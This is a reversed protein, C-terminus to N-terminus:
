QQPAPCHVRQLRFERAQNSGEGGDLFVSLTQPDARRYTIRRPYDHSPDEFRAEGPRSSTLRFRGQANGRPAPVLTVGASDAVIRSFEWGLTHGDHEDLYRTMALMVDSNAATWQEEIVRDVGGDGRWCGAMFGLAALPPQPQPQQVVAPVAFLAALVLITIRGYPILRM